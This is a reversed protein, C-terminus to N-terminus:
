RGRERPHFRKHVAKLDAISVQTYIQTTQLSAHGLLKQIHRIDAGGQLMHTACAHRLRHPRVPKKMGAREAVAKVILAVDIRRLPLGSKTVFLALRGHKRKEVSRKFRQADALLRPRAGEVYAELVETAIPGLPVVRDKGGKGARVTLTESGPEFDSLALGVLESSRIGTAYLVEVLARDRLGLPTSTDISELLRLAEKPTLLAQPLARRRRPLVLSEAPNRLLLGERLLYRFFARLSLLRLSQTAPSLRKGDEEHSLLATQYSSLLEPTVEALSTVDTEKELWSLFVRLNHEYGPITRKSWGWTAMAEVFRLLLLDM